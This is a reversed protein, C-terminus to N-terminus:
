EYKSQEEQLRLSLEQFKNISFKNTIDHLIYITGCRNKYEDFIIKRRVLFIRGIEDVTAFFESEEFNEKRLLNRLQVYALSSLSVDHWPQFSLSQELAGLIKAFIKNYHEIRGQLDVIFIGDEMADLVANLENRQMQLNKLNQKHSDSLRKWLDTLELILLKIELTEPVPFKLKQDLLKKNQLIEAIKKIPQAIKHSLKESFYVSILLALIFVLCSLFVMKTSFSERDAIIKSIHKQNDKMIIRLYEQMKAYNNYNLSEKNKLYREFLIRLKKLAHTNVENNYYKDLFDLSSRFNNIENELLSFNDNKSLYISDLSDSMLMIANTSQYNVFFVNKPNKSSFYIFIILFLGLTGSLFIIKLVEILIERRM